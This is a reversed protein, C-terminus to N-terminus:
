LNFPKLNQQFFEPDCLNKHNKLFDLDNEKNRYEDPLMQPITDVIPFWRNCEECFLLGTEIEIDLKIKNLLYLEPLIEDLNTIEKKESFKKIKEKIETTLLTFCKSSLSLDTKDYIYELENISRVILTLYEVLSTNKIIIGDKIFIGKPTEEIEILSEQKILNIDKDNYVKLFAEFQSFPTEYNFIYLRLPYHKDMPCALIDFLWPKM